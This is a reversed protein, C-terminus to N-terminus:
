EDDEDEADEEDDDAKSRKGVRKGKEKKPKKKEEKGKKGKKKGGTDETSVEVDCNAPNLVVTTEGDFTISNEDSSMVGEVDLDLEISRVLFQVSGSEGEAGSVAVVASWPIFRNEYRQTRPIRYYIVVGKGPEVSVIEGDLSDTPKDVVVTATSNADKAM